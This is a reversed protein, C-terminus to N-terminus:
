PLPQGGVKYSIVGHLDAQLKQALEHLYLFGRHALTSARKQHGYRVPVPHSEVGAGNEKMGQLTGTLKVLGANVSLQSVLVVDKHQDFPYGPASILLGAHAVSFPIAQQALIRTITLYAEKDALDTTILVTNAGPFPSAQGYSLTLSGSLLLIFCYRIHSTIRHVM